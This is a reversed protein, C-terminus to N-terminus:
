LIELPFLRGNDLSLAYQLLSHFSATFPFPSEQSLPPSPLLLHFLTRYISGRYGGSLVIGMCLACVVSLTGKHIFPSLTDEDGVDHGGCDVIRLALHAM